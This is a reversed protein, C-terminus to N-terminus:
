AEPMPIRRRLAPDDSMSRLENMFYVFNRYPVDPPVHRDVSPFYGGTKLVDRIRALEVDM